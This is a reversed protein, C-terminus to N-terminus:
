THTPIFNAIVTILYQHLYQPNVWWAQLCHSPKGLLLLLWKMLLMVATTLGKHCMKTHSGSLLLKNSIVKYIIDFLFPVSKIDWM